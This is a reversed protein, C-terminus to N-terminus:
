LRARDLRRHDDGDSQRSSTNPESYRLKSRDYRTRNENERM